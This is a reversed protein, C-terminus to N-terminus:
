DILISEPHLIRIILSKYRQPNLTIINLKNIEATAIFLVDRLGNVERSIKNVNLSYRSHIGLVKLVSLTSKAHFEEEPSSCKLMIEAANLVTTFCIGRQLLGTLISINKTTLHDYIIDTDILFETKKNKM